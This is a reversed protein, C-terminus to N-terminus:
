RARRLRRVLFFAGAALVVTGVVYGGWNVAPLANDDVDTLALFAAPEVQSCLSSRWTGGRRDLLLGVREGIPLELGCAASDRASVVDIRNEIEDGKYIQEVRFRYVAESPGRPSATLLTGVFAGDARPLDRALNVPVCTCAEARAAVALVAALGVACALGLRPLRASM